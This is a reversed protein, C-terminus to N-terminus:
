PPPAGHVSELWVGRTRGNSVSLGTIRGEADREFEITALFIVDTAFEDGERHRLAVPEMDVHRMPVDLGGQRLTAASASGDADFRFTFAAQVVAIAITSDSTASAEVRPQGAAQFFIRGDEVAIEADLETGQVSIVWSGAIAAVREEPM